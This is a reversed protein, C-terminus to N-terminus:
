GAIPPADVMVTDGQLESTDSTAEPTLEASTDLAPSPPTGEETQEAWEEQAAMKEESVLDAVKSGEDKAYIKADVELGSMNNDVEEWEEDAIGFGNEAPVEVEIELGTTDDEADEEAKESADEAADEESDEEADQEVDEDTDPKTLAETDSATSSSAQYDANNRRASRRTQEDEDDSESVYGDEDAILKDRRRQTYRVDNNEDEDEDDLEDEAESDMGPFDPPIDMM